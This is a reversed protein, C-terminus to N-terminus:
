LLCFWAYLLALSQSNFSLQIVDPNFHSSFFCCLILFFFMQLHQLFVVYLYHVVQYLALASLLGSPLLEMSACPLTPPRLFLLLLLPPTRRLSYHQLGTISLQTYLCTPPFRWKSVCHPHHHPTPPIPSRLKASPSLLRAHGKTDPLWIPTLPANPLPKSSQARKGGMRLSHNWRGLYDKAM